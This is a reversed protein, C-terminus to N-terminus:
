IRYLDLRSTLRLKQCIFVKDAWEFVEYPLQDTDATLIIPMNGFYGRITNAVQIKERYCPDFEDKGFYHTGFTDHRLIVFPAKLENTLDKSSNDYDQFGSSIRYRWLVFKYSYTDLGYAVAIKEFIKLDGDSCANEFNSESVVDIIIPRGTRGKGIEGKVLRFCIDRWSRYVERGILLINKVNKLDACYESLINYNVQKKM